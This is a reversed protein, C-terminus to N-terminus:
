RTAAEVQRVSAEDAIRAAFVEFMDVQGEIVPPPEPEPEPDGGSDDRREDYEACTYNQISNEDMEVWEAPTTGTALAVSLIPCYKESQNDDNRCTWCGHPGGAWYEFMSGNSFASGPKADAAIQEYTRM